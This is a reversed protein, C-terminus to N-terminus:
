RRAFPHWCLYTGGTEHALAGTRLKFRNLGPTEAALLGLDLRQCGIGSLTEMARWMLLNHAGLARGQATTHGIHYSAAKGHSLFLMQAIIQGKHCAVFLHTQAPAASAFAMTLPAPWNLYGRQRAQATELKVIEDSQDVALPYCTVAIASQEAKRLQNRWKQHLQGRQQELSKCLTLWALRRPARLRLGFPMQCPTDPSLLIPCSQLKAQRLKGWLDDPVPARPLMTIKVGAVRRVLLILGGSLIVPKQGCIRLAVAFAPDQMLAHDPLRAEDFM